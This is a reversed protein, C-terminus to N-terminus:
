AHAGETAEGAKGGSGAQEAREPAQRAAAPRRLQASEWRGALGAAVRAAAVAAVVLVAQLIAVWGAPLGVVHRVALGARDLLALALAAAVMGLASARGALAVAIALLGYDPLQALALPASAGLGGVAPTGQGLM